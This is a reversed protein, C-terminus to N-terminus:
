LEEVDCHLQDTACIHTCDFETWNRNRTSNSKPDLGSVALQKFQAWDKKPAPVDYYKQSTSATMTSSCIAIVVVM